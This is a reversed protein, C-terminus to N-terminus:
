EKLLRKLIGHMIEGDWNAAGKKQIIISGDKAIVYTTPLASPSLQSPAEKQLIYVPFTYNNKLMFRELKEQPDQSIFYFDVTDKYENYLNQLSPMEAICPPCWTAWVNIVIVKGKSSKFNQTEGDIHSLEWDYNLLIDRKGESIESPNFSFIRLMFVQIPTRTQPIMILVLLLVFVLNGKNNKLFSIM